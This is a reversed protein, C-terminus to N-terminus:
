LTEGDPNEYQESMNGAAIQFPNLDLKKTADKFLKLSPTEKLPPNPWDNEREPALPDQEGSIGATEEWKFYYKEMEDYTIGWDQVNMDKPIKDEGYRDITQSRIEFDYPWYRYTAGAWHVSAGGLGTGIQMNSRTRVPLATEEVENRSTITEGSLNQMIQFRNDFRLEDKVGIYDSREKHEGRELAVVEKGAKAMEASIIGGAWGVGVVVVDVKDLKKAMEVNGGQYTRLGEPELSQFDESEIEDMWGMRPGPYEMMKWGQMDKNGGYVPDSYVGEITTNRLLAFFTDARMGKVDVDNSEFRELIADQDEGELDFFKEDHEKQSI